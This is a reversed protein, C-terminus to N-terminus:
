NLRPLFFVYGSSACETQIVEVLLGRTAAAPLAENVFDKWGDMIEERNTRIDFQICKLSRMAKLTMDLQKWDLASSRPSDEPLCKLDNSIKLTITQISPPLTEIIGFVTWNLLETYGYFLNNPLCLTISHLM